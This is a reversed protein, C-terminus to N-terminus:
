ILDWGEFQEGEGPSVYVTHVEALGVFSGPTVETGPPGAFSQRDRVKSPSQAITVTDGIGGPEASDTVEPLHMRAAEVNFLRRKIERHRARM